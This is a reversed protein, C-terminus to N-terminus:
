LFVSRPPSASFLLLRYDVSRSTQCSRDHLKVAEIGLQTKAITM